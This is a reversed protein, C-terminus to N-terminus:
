RGQGMMAGPNMMPGSKMMEAMQAPDMMHGSSMMMGGPMTQGPQMMPGSKMMESMQDANMMMAPRGRAPTESSELVVPVAIAAGLVAIGSIVVARWYSRRQPRADDQGTEVEDHAM